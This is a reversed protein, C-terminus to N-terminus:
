VSPVYDLEHTEGGVRISKSSRLELELLANMYEMLLGGRLPSKRGM